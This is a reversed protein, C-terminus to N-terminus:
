LEAEDTHYNGLYMKLKDQYIMFFVGIAVFMVSALLLFIAIKPDTITNSTYLAISMLFSILSFVLWSIAFLTASSQM